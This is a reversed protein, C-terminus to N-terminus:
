NHGKWFVIKKELRKLTEDLIIGTIGMTIIGVFVIDSQLYKGADLVMWGVGSVAAVMEAAVLTSYMAAMANRLGTFIDPLSVPFIVFFFIQTPTAGLNKASNAYDVRMRTIGSVCSIYIPPFGALFLLMIKSNDDIGMWLVLITYYALPPLPRCFSIIPDLAAALKPFRGSLLGAPIATIIAIGYAIGLRRLSDLLHEWLTHGKYGKTLTKLFSNWVDDPSPFILKPMNGFRAALYWALLIVMGSIVSIYLYNKPKKSKKMM